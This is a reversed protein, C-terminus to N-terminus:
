NEPYGEAIWCIVLDLEAQTLETLGPTGYSPPMDRRAVVWDEYSGNDLFPKIGDYDFFIGAVGSGGDHCGSYVCYTETIMKMNLDWTAVGDCSIEPAEDRTCSLWIMFSLFVVFVSIKQM